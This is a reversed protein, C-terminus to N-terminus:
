SYFKYLSLRDRLVLLLVICLIVFDMSSLLSFNNICYSYQSFLIFRSFVATVSVSIVCFTLSVFMKYPGLVLALSLPCLLLGFVELILALALYKPGLKGLCPSSIDLHNAFFALALV